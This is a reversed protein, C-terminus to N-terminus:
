DRAYRVVSFAWFGLLETYELRTIERETSVYLKPLLSILFLLGARSFWFRSTSCCHKTRRRVVTICTTRYTLGVVNHLLPVIESIKSMVRGNLTVRFKRSGV